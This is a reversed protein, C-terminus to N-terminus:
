SRVRGTALAMAWKPRNNARARNAARQWDYDLAIQEVTWAGSADDVIAYRAHPSGTECVHAPPSDDCYAPCGVSGPNVILTTGSHVVRQIHTHGCLVLAASVSALRDAIAVAPALRMGGDAVEELLYTADHDPTAHFALVGPVPELTLPLAALSKCAGATLERVADREWSRPAAAVQLEEVAYRDSPGLGAVPECLARDHNGRVTPLALPALREFTERPWLPGSVVDGLNVILDAGRRAIDSLVADLALVNGHIDAIVALRM